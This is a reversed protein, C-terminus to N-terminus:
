FAGILTTWIQDMQNVGPGISECRKMPLLILPFYYVELIDTYSGFRTQAPFLVEETGIETGSLYDM